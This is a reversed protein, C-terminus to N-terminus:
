VKIIFDQAGYGSNASGDSQALLDRLHEQAQAAAAGFDNFANDFSTSSLQGPSQQWLLYIVDATEDYSLACCAPLAGVGNLALSKSLVAQRQVADLGALELLPAFCVVLDAEELYTVSIELNGSVVLLFGDADEKGDLGAGAMWQKLTDLDM